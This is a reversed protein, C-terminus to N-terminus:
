THYKGQGHEYVMLDQQSKEYAAEIHLWAWLVM